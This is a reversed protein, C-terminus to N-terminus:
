NLLVLCDSKTDIQYHTIIRMLQMVKYLAMQDLLNKITSPNRVTFHHWRKIFAPKIANQKTRNTSQSNNISVSVLFKGTRMVITTHIQNSLKHTHAVMSLCLSRVIQVHTPTNKGEETSSFSGGMCAQIFERQGEEHKAGWFTWNRIFRNIFVGCCLLFPMEHRNM